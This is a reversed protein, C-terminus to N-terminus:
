FYKILWDIIKQTTKGYPPYLLHLNTFGIRQKLVPKMNSFAQFGFLGHSKGIGSTGHGGFPIEMHAYHIVCENICMGGAPIEQIFNKRNKANKSFIYASLPNPNENVIGIVEKMEKYSIVPLIPGFIEKQMIDMDFKIGSLIIPSIFKESKVFKEELHNNAGKEIADDYLNQLHKFHKESIIRAYDNSNKPNETYYKKTFNKLEDLLQDHIKEHAIIYDPAVCTQGSNFFKGWVLKKAADKIDATEDIIVPSKGGLELTVSALNKAAAEMVIKGVATSGTFFIHEFPLSLLHKTEQVTGQVIAVEDKSFIEQIIKQMIASSHASIESPKLIVTNGAAIASVLPSLTLNVPFNWPAIILVTGKPEYYIKTSTGILSIPTSVSKPRAWKHLNRRAHKIELIVPLIESSDVDISPKSFDKFLADRIDQRHSLLANQLKKLKNKREHIPSIRLESAKKKQADFIKSIQSIDTYTIIDQEIM